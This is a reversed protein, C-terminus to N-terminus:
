QFTPELIKEKCEVSCFSKGDSESCSECCLFHKNCQPNRCNVYRESKTGCKECKGVVVHKGKPDFDMTIRRDFVYLTGEFEQAPFKEMYTM